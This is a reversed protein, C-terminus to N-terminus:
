SLKVYGINNMLFEYNMSLKELSSTLAISSDNNLQATAKAQFKVLLLVM